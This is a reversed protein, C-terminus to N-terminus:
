RGCSAIGVGVLREARQDCVSDFPTAGEVPFLYANPVLVDFPIAAAQAAVMAGFSFM